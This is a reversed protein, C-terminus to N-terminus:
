EARLNRAGPALLCACSLQSNLTSRKLSAATLILQIFFIFGKKHNSEAASCAALEVDANKLIRLDPLDRTIALFGGL